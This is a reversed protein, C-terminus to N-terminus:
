RRVGSPSPQSQKQLLPGWKWVCGIVVVRGNHQMTKIEKTENPRNM